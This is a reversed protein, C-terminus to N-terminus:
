SDISYIYDCIWQLNNVLLNTFLFLYVFLINLLQLSILNQIIKPITMGPSIICSNFIM